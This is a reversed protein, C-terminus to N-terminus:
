GLLEGVSTSAGKKSRIAGSPNFENDHTKMIDAWTMGKWPESEPLSIKGCQEGKTVTKKLFALDNTATPLTLKFDHTNLTVTGSQASQSVTPFRAYKKGKVHEAIHQQVNSQVKGTLVSPFGHVFFLSLMLHFLVHILLGARQLGSQRM